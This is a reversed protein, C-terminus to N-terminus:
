HPDDKLKGHILARKDTNIVYRQSSDSARERSIEGRALISWSTFCANLLHSTFTLQVSSHVQLPNKSSRFPNETEIAWLKICRDSLVKAQVKNRIV